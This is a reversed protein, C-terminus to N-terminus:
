RCRPGARGRREISPTPKTAACVKNPGAPAGVQGAEAGKASSLSPSGRVESWGSPAPAGAQEARVGGRGPCEAAGVRPGRLSSVTTSATGEQGSLGRHDPRKRGGRGGPLGGDWGHWVAQTWDTDLQDALLGFQDPPDLRGPGPQRIRDGPIWVRQTQSLSPGNMGAPPVAETSQKEDVRHLDLRERETM